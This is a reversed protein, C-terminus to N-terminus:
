ATVTPAYLSCTVVVTTCPTYMHTAATTCRVPLVQTHSDHLLVHTRSDYLSCTLVATTFSACSYPQRVSLTHTRSDYLYRTLVATTCIAHLYPQREPPRFYAQRVPLVHTQIVIAAPHAVSQLANLSWKSMFQGRYLFLRLQEDVLGPSM